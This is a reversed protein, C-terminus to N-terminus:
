WYLTLLQVKRIIEPEHAPFNNNNNNHPSVSEVHKQKKGGM